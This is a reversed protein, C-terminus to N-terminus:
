MIARACASWQDADEIADTLRGTDEVAVTLRSTDSANGAGLAEVLAATTVSLPVIDGASCNFVREANLMEENVRNTTVNVCMDCAPGDSLYSQCCAACVTCGNPNCQNAPPM